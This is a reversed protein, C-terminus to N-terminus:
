MEKSVSTIPTRSWNDKVDETTKCSLTLQACQLVNEALLLLKVAALLRLCHRNRALLEFTEDSVQSRSSQEFKERIVEWSITKGNMVVDIIVCGPMLETFQRPAQSGEELVDSEVEPVSSPWKDHMGMLHGATDKTKRKVAKTRGVM